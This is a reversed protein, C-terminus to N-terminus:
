HISWTSTQTQLWADFKADTLSMISPPSYSLRIFSDNMKKVRPKIRSTLSYALLAPQYLVFDKLEQTTLGGGNEKDLLYEIKPTLNKEVSLGLIQPYTVLIDRLEVKDFTFQDRLFSLKSELNEESLWLVPPFASIMWSVDLKNNLGCAIELYKARLSLHEIKCSFVQPYRIIVRKWSAENMSLDNKFFELTCKLKDNISHTLVLPRSMIMCAIDEQAFNHGQFFEVTEIINSASYQLIQPAKLIITAVKERKMGIAKFYNCIARINGRYTWKHSRKMLSAVQAPTLDLDMQLQSYVNRLASSDLARYTLFPHRQIYREIKSRKLPGVKSVLLQYKDSPFTARILRMDSIGRGDDPVLCTDTYLNHGRQLNLSSLKIMSENNLFLLISILALNPSMVAM